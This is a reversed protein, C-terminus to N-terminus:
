KSCCSKKKKKRYDAANSESRKIKFAGGPNLNHRKETVTNKRDMSENQDPQLERILIQRVLASVAQTVGVGSKASTCVAGIFGYDEAFKQLYDFTMFEELEHNSDVLEEVLDYKNLVLLMPIGKDEDDEDIGNNYDFQAM